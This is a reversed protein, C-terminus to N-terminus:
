EYFDLRQLGFSRYCSQDLTLFKIRFNENICFEHVAEIVGYRVRESWNGQTYDHGCIFGDVKVKKEAVKLEEKTNFYSHSTDIYIWDFYRDPFKELEKISNGKITRVVPDSKFRKKVQKLKDENLWHDILILEEPECYKLIQASFDGKDVGLEAVKTSRNKLIKILNLRDPLLKCDETHKLNLSFPPIHNREEISLLYQIIRERKDQPLIYLLRKITRKIM